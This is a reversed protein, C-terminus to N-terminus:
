TGLRPLRVNIAVLLPGIFDAVVCWIECTEYSTERLDRQFGQDPSGWAKPLLTLAEPWSPDLLPDASFDVIACLDNIPDWSSKEVM